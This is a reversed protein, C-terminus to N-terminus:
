SVAKRLLNLRARSDFWFAGDRQESAAMFSERLSASQAELAPARAPDVALFGAAFEEYGSYKVPARYHIEALSELGPAEAAATLARYAAARVETEDEVPRVMEFYPGAAVPEQIYLLGGPRLVRQAEALATAQLAVPIHHLSNFFVVADFTGDDFDLAEGGGRRYREQGAPTPSKARALQAASPELGTVRAGERTMFRVLSGDGCGVDLVAADKLPLNERMVASHKRLPPEERSDDAM